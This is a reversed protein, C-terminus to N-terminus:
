NMDVLWIFYFADSLFVQLAVTVCEMTCSVSLASTSLLMVGKVDWMQQSTTHGHSQPESPTRMIYFYM